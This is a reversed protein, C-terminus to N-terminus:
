SRTSSFSLPLDISKISKHGAIRAGRLAAKVRKEIEEKTYDM